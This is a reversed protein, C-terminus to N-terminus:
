EKPVGYAIEPILQSSFFIACLTSAFFIVVTLTTFPSVM